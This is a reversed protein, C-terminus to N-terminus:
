PARGNSHADTTMGMRSSILAAGLMALTAVSVVALWLRWGGTPTWQAYRIFWVPGSIGVAYRRENSYWGIAQVMAAAGLIWPAIMPMRFGGLRSQNRAVMEGALMPVSAALALTYRGQPGYGSARNLLVGIAVITVAALVGMGVLLLSKRRTGVFLAIGCLGALLAQWIVYAPAPMRGDRWGFVGIQEQLLVPIADITGVIWNVLHPLHSITGTGASLQWATSALLGAATAAVAWGAWRGGRRLREAAGRWGLLIVPILSLSTVWLPSLNRSLGLTLGALGIAVWTWRRPRDARSIRLMGAGFCIGAAVEIGSGTLSAGLHLAMPTVALALGALPALSTRHVLMAAALSLLGATILAVTARGALLATVPDHAARMALGPPIYIYPPYVGVYSAEPTLPISSPAATAGVHCAGSLTPTFAECGFRVPVLDTPLDFVRTVSNASAVQERTM